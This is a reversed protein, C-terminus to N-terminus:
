ADHSSSIAILTTPLLAVGGRAFAEHGGGAVTACRGITRMAKQMSSPQGPLVFVLNDVKGLCPFGM